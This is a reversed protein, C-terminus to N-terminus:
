IERSGFWAVMAENFRRTRGRTLSSIRNRVTKDICRILIDSTKHVVEGHRRWNREREM